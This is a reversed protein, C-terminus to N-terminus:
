GNKSSQDKSKNHLVKKEKMPNKLLKEDVWKQVDKIL